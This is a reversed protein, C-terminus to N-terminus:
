LAERILPCTSCRFSGGLKSVESYDTTIVEFGEQRLFDNIRILRNESIVTEPTLSVLNTGLAFQESATIEFLNYRKKLISLSEEEFAPPYILATKKGLLNFVVDLHLFDPKLQLPQIEVRNDLKERLRQLGKIETREGMGVYMVDRDILIDGGETIGKDLQIVPNEILAPLATVDPTPRNKMSCIFLTDHIVTFADRCFPRGMNVPKREYRYVQVGFNEFIEAFREYQELMVDSRPPDNKYYYRQVSNVPENIKFNDIFGLLVAKLPAFESNIYVRM